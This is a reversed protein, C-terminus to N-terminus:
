VQLVVHLCYQWYNFHVTDVVQPIATM